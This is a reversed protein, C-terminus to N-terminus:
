GDTAETDAPRPWGAEDVDHIPDLLLFDQMDDFSELQPPEFAVLAGNPSAALADSAGAAPVGDAVVLAHALLTEVFGHVAEELVEASADYHVALGAAAGAPTAGQRLLNFAVAGTANLSHYHGNDFNILVIEGDIEEYAVTPENV